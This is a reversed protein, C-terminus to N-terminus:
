AFRSPDLRTLGGAENKLFEINSLGPVVQESTLEPPWRTAFGRPFTEEPDKHGSQSWIVAFLAGAPKQDPIMEDFSVGPHNLCDPRPDWVIDDGFVRVSIALRWSDTPNGSSYHHCWSHVVLLDGLEMEWTLFRVRPDDRLAEVDPRSLRDPPHVM